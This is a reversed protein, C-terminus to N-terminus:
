PPPAEAALTHKFQHLYPMSRSPPAVGQDIRFGSVGMRWVAGRHQRLHLRRSGSGFTVCGDMEPHKVAGDLGLIYPAPPDLPTMQVIMCPSRKGHLHGQFCAGCLRLGPWADIGHVTDVKCGNGHWVGLGVATASSWPWAVRVLVAPANPVRDLARLLDPM